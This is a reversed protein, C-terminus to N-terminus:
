VAGSNRSFLILVTKAILKLDYFFSWNEQYRLDLRIVDEFNTVKSRGHVQWEGTMGPKVNLRQWASVEYQEIEDPTPPRTGVLSMEGKLVNWFQPLEDLSTRRLFRGIRTVRPDNENKFLPGEVQNTVQAKLAEADAVMSRFKWITFRKGMWSCRTQGFLIPGRDEYRIAIAIPVWAIGTILLGVLAGVIDTLRKAKSRVSPHTSPLGNLRSQPPSLPSASPKITFIKDLETMQLAMMVQCPVNHLQMQAGQAQSLRHCIVLAGIGSSDIFSTKEFDLIVQNLCTNQQFLAQCTQKFAVAELVTFIETIYITGVKKQIAAEFKPM